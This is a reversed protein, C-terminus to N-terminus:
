KQIGRPSLFYNGDNLIPSLIHYSSSSPSSLATKVFTPRGDVVNSWRSFLMSEVDQTRQTSVRELLQVFTNAVDQVLMKQHQDLAIDLNQAIYSKILTSIYLRFWVPPCLSLVLYHDTVVGALIVDM